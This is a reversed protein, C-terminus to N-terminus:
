LSSKPLTHNSYKTCYRISHNTLQGWMSLEWMHIGFSHINHCITGLRGHIAIKLLRIYECFTKYYKRRSHKKTRGVKVEKWLRQSIKCDRIFDFEKTSITRHVLWKCFTIDPLILLTRSNKKKKKKTIRLLEPTWIKRLSSFALCFCKGFIYM